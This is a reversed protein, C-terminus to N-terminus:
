EKIIRSNLREGKSNIAVLQYIGKSFATLDLNNINPYAGVLQGISSYLQVTKVVGFELPFAVTANQTTPNPFVKIELKEVSIENISVPQLWFALWYYSVFYIDNIYGCYYLFEDRNETFTVSNPFSPDIYEQYLNTPPPVDWWGGPEWGTFLVNSCTDSAISSDGWSATVPWHLTKIDISIINAAYSCTNRIIQKKTHYSGSTDGDNMNMRRWWEDSIRVDLGTDLPTNIINIEQFLSDISDTAANDYGIVITDRNGVADSFYLPFSFQQAHVLCCAFFGLLALIVKKM